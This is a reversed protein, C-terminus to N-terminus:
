DESEVEEPEPMSALGILEAQLGAAAISEALGETDLKALLSPTLTDLMRQLNAKDAGQGDQDGGAPLAELRDAIPGLVQDRFQGVAQRLHGGAMRQAQKSIRDVHRDVARASAKNVVVKRDAPLAPRSPDPRQEKFAGFPPGAPPEIREVVAEGEDPIRYGLREYLEKKALPLGVGQTVIQAVEAELKYNVPDALERKFYPTPVQPGFRWRVLPALLQSRITRAEKQIDSELLDRRVNDHVKAAAYTGTAGTTDTTLTQGLFLKSQQREAWSVISEYPASARNPTEVLDLQMADSFIGVADSGLLRLMDLAERKDDATAQPGYKAVRVPMGFVECYVAWDKVGFAKVLYLLLAPRLLAGRAPFGARANPVHVVFKGLEAEIGQTRETDTLVRIGKGRQYDVTLRNSQVPWVGVLPSAPDKWNWELECVALHPGIATALHELAEPFAEMKGLVRRCYTAAQDAQGLGPQGLGPQGPNPQAQDAPDDESEAASTIKWPLRTLALRRTAAVSALHADREEIEESLEVMAALDGADAAKLLAAAKVPTLGDALYRRSWDRQPDYSVVQGRSPKKISPTETM